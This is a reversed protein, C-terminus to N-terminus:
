LYISTYYDRNVHHTTLLQWDVWIAERDVSTDGTCRFVYMCKCYLVNGEIYNVVIGTMYMTLTHKVFNHTTSLGDHKQQM